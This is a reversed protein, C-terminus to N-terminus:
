EDKYVMGNEKLINSEICLESYRKDHSMFNKIKLNTKLYKRFSDGTNSDQLYSIILDRFEKQIDNLEKRITEIDNDEIKDATEGDYSEQIGVAKLKIKTM